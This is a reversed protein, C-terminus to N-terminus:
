IMHVEKKSMADYLYQNNHALNSQRTAFRKWTLRRWSLCSHRFSITSVPTHRLKPKWCPASRHEATQRRTAKTQLLRSAFVRPSKVEVVFDDFPGRAM